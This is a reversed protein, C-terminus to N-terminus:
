LAQNYVDLRLPFKSIGNVKPGVALANTNDCLVSLCETFVSTDTIEVDPNILFASEYGAEVAYRLGINNGSAYGANIASKIFKLREKGRCSEGIIEASNDTSNNDVVCISFETVELVKEILSLTDQPSNFNLVIVISKMPEIM